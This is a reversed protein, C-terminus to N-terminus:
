KALEEYVHKNRELLKASTALLEEDSVFEDQEVDSYTKHASNTTM